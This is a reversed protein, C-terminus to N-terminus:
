SKGCKSLQLSPYLTESSCLQPKCAPDWLNPTMLKGLEGVHWPLNHQGCGELVSNTHMRIWLWESGSAAALSVISVAM